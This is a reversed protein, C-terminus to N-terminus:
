IHGALWNSVIQMDIYFRFSSSMFGCLTAPAIYLPSAWDKWFSICCHLYQKYLSIKHTIIIYYINLGQKWIVINTFLATLIITETCCRAVRNGNMDIYRYCTCWRIIDFMENNLKLESAYVISPWVPIQWTCYPM